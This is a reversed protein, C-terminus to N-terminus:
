APTVPTSFDGKKAASVITVNALENLKNLFAQFMQDRAAETPTTGDTRFPEVTINLSNGSPTHNLVVEYRLFGTHAETGYPM